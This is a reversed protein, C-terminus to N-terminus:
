YDLYKCTRFAGSDCASRRWKRSSPTAYSHRLRHPSPNKAIDLRQGLRGLMTRVVRVNIGEGREGVFLAKEELPNKILEIRCSMIWRKLLDASTHYIPVIRRRTAIMCLFHKM